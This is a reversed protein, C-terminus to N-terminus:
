PKTSQFCPINDGGSRSSHFYRVSKHVPLLSRNAGNPRGLTGLKPPFACQHGLPYLYRGLISVSREISPELGTPWLNRPRLLVILFEIWATTFSIGLGLRSSAPIFRVSSSNQLDFSGSRM